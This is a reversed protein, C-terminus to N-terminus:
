RDRVVRVQASSGTGFLYATYIASADLEVPTATAIVSVGGPTAFTITYTLSPTVQFYTSATGYALGTTQAAFNVLVDAAASGVGANVFRIKAFGATPLSNDDVFALVSPTALAGAAVASYDRAPDLQKSVSAINTGPVNSAEIQLAHTGSATTVYSSSGM